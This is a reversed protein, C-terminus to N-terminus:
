ATTALQVKLWRPQSASGKGTATGTGSQRGSTTCFSYSGDAPAVFECEPRGVYVAGATHIRVRDTTLQAGATTTGQRIRILHEDTGTSTLPVFASLTYTRGGVLTVTLTEFVTESSTFTGTDSQSEAKGVRRNLAENVEAAYVPAGGYVTM